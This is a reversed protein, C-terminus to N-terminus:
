IYTLDLDIIIFIQSFLTQCKLIKCLFNKQSFFEPDWNKIVGKGMPVNEKDTLFTGSEPHQYRPTKLHAISM